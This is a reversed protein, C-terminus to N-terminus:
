EQDTIALVEPMYVAPDSAWSWLDAGINCPDCDETESSPLLSVKTQGCVGFAFSIEIGTTTSSPLNSKGYVHDVFVGLGLAGCRYIKSWNLAGRLDNYAQQYQFRLDFDINKFLKQNFALIAGVGSLRKTSEFHRSYTVQQYTISPILTACRWPNILFGAQVLLNNAGAIKRFWTLSSSEEFRAESLSKDPANSYTFGLEVGTLYCPCEFHYQYKGGLALQHMWHHVKGTQFKYHLKQSFYEASAKFRHGDEIFGLTGSVRNSKSGAELLLSFATDNSLFIPTTNLAAVFFYNDKTKEHAQIKNSFICSSLILGAYTLSCLLKYM